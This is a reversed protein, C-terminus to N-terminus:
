EEVEHERVTVFDCGNVWEDDGDPQWGGEFCFRVKLAAKIANEKKVHVSVVSGGECLEGHLVVFVTM